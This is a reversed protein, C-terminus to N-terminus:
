ILKDILKRLKDPTIIENTQFRGNIFLSYTTIPCIHGQAMEKTTILHLRIPYDSELIIPKLLNTYPVTFPCQATFFIDIGKIGEGMGQSAYDNFRPLPANEDFRKVILEFFPPCTDCVEYGHKLMFGKDSLFPKKKNGVILTIGKYGQDKAESECEALLQRGYGQGKFSGSVWFCNIFIYGDAEIPAWANKAPLYEIFVKGRTDLKKFKLGEQMRCKLWEKKAKVGTETSKSSISCCIHEEQLNDNSLTIINM